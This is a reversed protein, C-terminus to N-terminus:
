LPSMVQLLILSTNQGSGADIMSPPTVTPQADQITGHNGLESSCVSSPKGTGIARNSRGGVQVLRAPGDLAQYLM